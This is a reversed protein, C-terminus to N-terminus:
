KRRCSCAPGCSEAPIRSRRRCRHRQAHNRRGGLRARQDPRRVRRQRPRRRHHPRRPRSADPRRGAAPHRLERLDSQAVAAARGRDGGTLYQGSTSRGSASCAPSRRTSRRGSSRPASRAPDTGGGAQERRGRRRVEARSVADHEVLGKMREFTVRSSSSSRKPPPSSRRSRARTWSRRPHRRAQRGKGLRLAIRDVIGPLDASVTVGQVAAVTGIASLTAPWEERQAVITTVADPPPQMAAFQAAMAQFQRFKVFALAAIFVVMLVLM